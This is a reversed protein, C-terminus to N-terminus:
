MSNDLDQIKKKRLMTILIMSGLGLFLLYNDGVGPSATTQPQRGNNSSSTSSSGTQSSSTSSSGTPNSLTGFYLEEWNQQNRALLTFDFGTINTNYGYNLLPSVIPIAPLDDAL